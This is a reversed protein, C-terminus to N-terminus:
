RRRLEIRVTTGQDPCSELRLLGGIAEARQRMSILGWKGPQAGGAGSVPDFGVGDDCISLSVSDENQTVVVAVKRARAHKAVNTLAEQAIRFFAIEAQSELRPSPEEGAVDVDLYSWSRFRDAYWRLAALLGYDDLVPPRLDVMITRLQETAEELLKRASDITGDLRALTKPPLRSRLIGLHLGLATLTPGVQDHLDHAIRRREAEQADALQASLAQLQSSTLWVEEFLRANAIAQASHDAMARLLTLEDDTFDRETGFVYVALLGVIREQYILAASVTTRVDFELHAPTNTLNLTQINPHVTFHGFTAFMWEYEAAPASQLKSVFEQPEGFSARRYVTGQQEDWLAVVALPVGVARVIEECITTLLSGLDLEGALRSAVRALSATRAAERRAQEEALKRETIDQWASFVRRPRLNDEGPMGRSYARVWRLEGKNTVIRYEATTSRGTFLERGRAQVLTLDEPYIMQFLDTPMRLQSTDYGTVRSFADTVWEFAYSGDEDVRLSAAFDSTLESLARYREESVRLAEETRRRETIDYAFILALPQEGTEILEVTTLLTRPEGFKTFLVQEVNRLPPLQRFEEATAVYGGETRWVGLELPNRGIVEARSFGFLQLWAENIDVYRWDPFSTISIGVPSVHFAQAFREDAARLAAEARKRQTVEISLGGVSTIEGNANRVPFKAVEFYRRGDLTDVYEDRIVPIGTALVQRNAALFDAAIEPAFIDALTKGLVEPSTLGAVKEWAKNVLRFRLGEELVFFPAPSTDLLGALLDNATRAEEEAQRQATIDRFITVAGASRGATDEFRSVSALLHLRQGDKRVQTIEGRWAKHEDLYAGVSARDVGVFQTQLVDNFVQGLVEAAAWGYIREAARNWSRICLDPGTSIVADSIQDLLEAHYRLRDETEKHETVDRHIAVGGIAKGTTDRLLSVSALLTLPRGDRRRNVMEGSWTDDRRLIEQLESWTTDVLETQLLEQFPRGVVEAASWGYLGEAARNWSVIRMEADTSIVADALRDVLTAHFRLV